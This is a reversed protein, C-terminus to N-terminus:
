YVINIFYISFFTFIIYLIYLTVEFMVNCHIVLTMIEHTRLKIIAFHVKQIVNLDNSHKCANKLANV